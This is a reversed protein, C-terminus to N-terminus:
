RTLRGAKGAQRGQWGAQRALRGAKDAQRGQWSAQKTKHRITSTRWLSKKANAVLLILLVM